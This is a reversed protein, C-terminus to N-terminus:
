PTWGCHPVGLYGNNYQDLIYAAAIAADRVSKPLKDGPGYTSFFSEAFAIQDNVRPSAGAAYNLKAAIYAQALIYYADGGKPATNIVQYWTKGSLFFTTDEGILAWTPDYPAPGYKSHTKWYGPTLTCGCPVDITVTHEDEVKTGTKNNILWAVNIFKYVLRM